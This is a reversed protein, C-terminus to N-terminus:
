IPLDAPAESKKSGIRAFTPTTSVGGPFHYITALEETNLIFYKRKFENYFYGRNKYADLLFRKEANIKKPNRKKWNLLVFKYNPTLTGTPKFGNMSSNFHTISGIVGGINDSSFLDKPATYVARIGVDFGPKSISRELAKITETEGDTLFRSTGPIPKKDPGLEGKAGKLIKDREEQAALVWKKDVMKGTKPDKFEKRHARIIIQVWAQHGKGLSGLFEILPTMPDIKFEEKPDKDMGYDVYTKIPFADPNTLEFESVWLGTTEPDYSVPLTYDTAEFIEIGPYQSYLNAEIKNKHAKRTWVFFHIGGDISAIELSFVSFTSGKWYKEYWNGEGFPQSLGAMFFEMAKPSKFIDKPLKIELLINEQKALFQSRRYIVWLHWLVSLLLVPLWIPLTYYIVKFVLALNENAFFSTFIQFM